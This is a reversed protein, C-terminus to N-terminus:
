WVPGNDNGPALILVLSKVVGCRAWTVALLRPVFRGPNNSTVALCAALRSPQHLRKSPPAAPRIQWIAPCDTKNSENDRRKTQRKCSIILCGCFANKVVAYSYNCHSSWNAYQLAYAYRKTTCFCIKQSLGWHGRLPLTRPYLLAYVM